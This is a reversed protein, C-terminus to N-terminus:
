LTVAAGVAIDLLNANQSAQPVGPIRGEGANMWIGAPAIAAQSAIARLFWPRTVPTQGINPRGVLCM